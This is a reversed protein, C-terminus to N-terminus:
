RIRRHLEESGRVIMIGRWWRVSVDYDEIFDAIEFVMKELRRQNSIRTAAQSPNGANSFSPPSSLLDRVDYMRTVPASLALTLLIAHIM